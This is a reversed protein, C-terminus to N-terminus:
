RPLTSFAECLAEYQMAVAGYEGNRLSDTLACAARYLPTLGLNGSTGKVSHAALLAAEYDQRALADRLEAQDPEELFLQYCTEYLTLDGMFRETLGPIDAGYAELAKLRETHNM